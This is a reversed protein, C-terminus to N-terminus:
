LQQCRTHYKDKCESIDVFCGRIQKLRSVGRKNTKSQLARQVLRWRQRVVIAHSLSQSLVLSRQDPSPNTLRESPVTSSDQRAVSYEFLYRECNSLHLTKKIMRHKVAKM